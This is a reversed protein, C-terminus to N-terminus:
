ENSAGTVIQDKVAVDKALDGYNPLTAAVASKHAYEEELDREKKYQSFAFGFGVYIPVLIALRLFVTGWLTIGDTARPAAQVMQRVNEILDFTVVVAIGFMIVAGILWLIRGVYLSKRRDSFSKSLSGSVAPELLNKISANLTESTTKLQALRQAESEYVARARDLDAGGSVLIPLDYTILANHLNDLMSCANQFNGQNGPSAFLAALHNVNQAVLNILNNIAQVPLQAFANKTFGDDILNRCYELVRRFDDLNYGDWTQYAGPANFFGEFNLRRIAQYQQRLQEVKDVVPM